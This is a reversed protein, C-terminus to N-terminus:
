APASLVYDELKQAVPRLRELEVVTYHTATVDRSNKHGLLAKVATASVDLKELLTAYTRRLDHITHTVGSRKAVAAITKRPELIHGTKSTHSAFVFDNSGQALLLELMQRVYNTMPVTRDEGNKTDRFLISGAHFDVDEWRLKAAEGRRAGTLLVFQLYVGITGRERAVPDNRLATVAEFWAKLQHEKIYGRRAKEKFWQGKQSLKAVPNSPILNEGYEAQAFYFLARLFRMAANAQAPGSTGRAIELHRQSVMGGDIKRLPKSHWASFYYSFYRKYDYRTRPKLQRVQMFRDFADKLTAANLAEERKKARPDIGQDVEVSYRRAEKRADDVSWVETDGIRLRAVTGNKLKREFVFVKSGNTVRVALGTVVDDRYFVQRGKEAYSLCEIYTKTLKPM